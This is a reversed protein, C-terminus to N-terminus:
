APLSLEWTRWSRHLRAPSASFLPSLPCRHLHPFILLLCCLPPHFLYIRDRRRVVLTRRNTGPGRQKATVGFPLVPAIGAGIGAFSGMAVPFSVRPAHRHCPVPFAPVDHQSIHSLSPRALRLPLLPCPALSVSPPDPATGSGIFHIM